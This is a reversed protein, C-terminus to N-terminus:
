KTEMMAKRIRSQCYRRVMRFTNMPMVPTIMDITERTLDVDDSVRMVIQQAHAHYYLRAVLKNQKKFYIAYNTRGVEIIRMRGLGWTIKGRLFKENM